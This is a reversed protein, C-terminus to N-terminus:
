GATSSLRGGLLEEVCWTLLMHELLTRGGGATKHGRRLRGFSDNLTSPAIDSEM